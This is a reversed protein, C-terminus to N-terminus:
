CKPNTTTQKFYHDDSKCNIYDYMQYSFLLVFFAAMVAVRVAKNKIKM